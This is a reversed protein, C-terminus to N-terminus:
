MVRAMLWLLDSIRNFFLRVEEPVGGDAEHLALVTREARRAIARAHDLGARALSGEAGPVAWGTFRVGRKERDRALGVVWDLDERTIMAYGSGRYAEADEPLHALQGMLGFLRSQIGEIIAIEGAVTTAARALGLAANLEDVCGLAAVRLSTKAIRRGFLLDTEGSDGRGTIISMAPSSIRVSQRKDM